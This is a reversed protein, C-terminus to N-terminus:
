WGGLEQALDVAITEALCESEVSQLAADLMRERISILDRIQDLPAHALISLDENLTKLLPATRKKQAALQTYYADAMDYTVRLRDEIWTRRHEYSKGTHREIGCLFARRVCRSTVHYYPTDSLCVLHKRARPM